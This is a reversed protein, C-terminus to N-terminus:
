YCIASSISFDVPLLVLSSVFYLSCATEMPKDYYADICLRKPVM